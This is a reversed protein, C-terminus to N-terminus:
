YTKSDFYYHTLVAPNKDNRYLPDVNKRNWLFLLITRVTVRM